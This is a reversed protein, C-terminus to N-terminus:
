EEQPLQDKMRYSKGEIIVTEARHLLRDLVASTLISDNNFIRAWHKYPQNSTLLLSGHEYRQSFVQFLLDAGLKDIPLYGLEDVALVAPKLYRKLEPKLRGATQAAALGNIIDVATTFLVSHGQLCAAHALALALHTKGLGVGGLLVVNAKDGVWALRFLNQVQPRNIKKPWSWDFQDLTKLLPLRAHQLRKQTARDLRALAEGEILRTLYQVPPWQERAAQDALAAYHERLYRLKLYDLYAPLTPEPIKM